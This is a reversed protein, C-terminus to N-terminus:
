DRGASLGNDAMVDSGAAIDAGEILFDGNVNVVGMRGQAHSFKHADEDVFVVEFPVLSPSNGAVDDSVSVVGNHGFGQLLPWDIHEFREQRTDIHNDVLDVAAMEFVDLRTIRVVHFLETGHRYDLVAFHMHSAKCDHTRVRYVADGANVRVNEFGRRKMVEVLIPRAHEIVLGVADSMTAPKHAIIRLKGVKDVACDARPYPM